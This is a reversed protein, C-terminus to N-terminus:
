GLPISQEEWALPMFITEGFLNEKVFVYVGKGMDGFLGGVNWDCIKGKSMEEGSTCKYPSSSVGGCAPCRFGEGRFSVTLEDITDFVKVSEIEIKPQNCEQYYNMYWYSRYQEWTDLINSANLGTKEAYHNAREL